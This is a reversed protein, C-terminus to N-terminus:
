SYEVTDLDSKTADTYTVVITLVTTGGSGGSKFVYTEVTSSTQQIDIYDFDVNAVLPVGSVIAVDLASKTSGVDTRTIKKHASNSNASNDDLASIEQKDAM